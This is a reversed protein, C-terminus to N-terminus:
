MYDLANNPDTTSCVDDQKKCFYGSGENCVYCKLHGYNSTFGNYSKCAGFIGRPFM